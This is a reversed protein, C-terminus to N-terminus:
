WQINWGLQLNGWPNGLNSENHQYRIRFRDQQSVRVSLGLLWAATPGYKWDALEAPCDRFFVHNQPKILQGGLFSGAELNIFRGLRLGAYIPLGVRFNSRLDNAGRIRPTIIRDYSFDAGLFLAGREYLVKEKLLFSVLGRPGEDRRNQRMTERQTQACVANHFLFLFVIIVWFKMGHFKLIRAQYTM